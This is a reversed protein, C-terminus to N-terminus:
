LWPAMFTDVTDEDYEYIPHNVTFYAIEFQFHNNLGRDFFRLDVCNVASNCNM